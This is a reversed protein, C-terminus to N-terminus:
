LAAGGQYYWEPIIKIVPKHAAYALVSAAQNATYSTCVGIEEVLFWPFYRELLFEAQKEYKCSVWSVARIADWNIANLNQLDNYDSFIRSGANSTTFAWRLNNANAWNVTKYLDAVLHIIPAQGGKYDLEPNRMHILYLIISRPCFYFPVCSGVYLDPYCSLPLETLRRQKIKNLGITTGPLQRKMIEADCFLGDNGLISPLRDVHVIHYIKIGTPVQSM